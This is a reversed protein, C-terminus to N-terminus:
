KNGAIIPKVAKAMREMWGYSEFGVKEVFGVLGGYM